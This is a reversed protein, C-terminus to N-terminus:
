VSISLKIEKSINDKIDFLCFSINRQLVFSFLLEIINIVHFITDFIRTHKILDRSFFIFDATRPILIIHTM